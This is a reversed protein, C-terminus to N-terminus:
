QEDSESDSQIDEGLSWYAKRAEESWQYAEDISGETPTAAKGCFDALGFRVKRLENVQEL